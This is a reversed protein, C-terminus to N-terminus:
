RSVFNRRTDCLPQRAPNHGRYPCDDTTRSISEVFRPIYWAPIELDIDIFGVVKGRAKLFGEKVTKGRGQNKSHYYAILHKRSYKKQAKKILSATSDTSKDDIFIVQYTWNTKDLVKIIEAISQQFIEAENYCPLILSLDYKHHM